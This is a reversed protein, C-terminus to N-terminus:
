SIKENNNEEENNNVYKWHLKGATKRRGHCSHSINSSYIGTQREAELLSSFIEGTEICMIKKSLKEKARENKTGYNNNYEYSCWELNDVYNNHKNEDKHNICPLNEPNPLFAKAVLRHVLEYYDKGNKHLLVYVYGNLHYQLELLKEKGTRRYNLSKVNGLNSVKYKGEYGVVDKWIEKVDEKM